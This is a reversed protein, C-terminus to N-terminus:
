SCRSWLWTAQVVMTFAIAEDVFEERNGEGWHAFILGAFPGNGGKPSAYTIDQVEVGDRSDTAVMVVDLPGYQDYYFLTADPM